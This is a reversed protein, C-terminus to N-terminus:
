KEEQISSNLISAISFQAIKQGQKIRLPSNSLNTVLVKIEDKFDADLSYPSCIIYSGNNFDWDRPSCTRVQLEYGKPIDLILNTPVLRSQGVPIVVSDGFSSNTLDAYLTYCASNESEKCPLSVDSPVKKKAKIILSLNKNLPGESIPQKPKELTNEKNATVELNKNKADESAKADVVTEKKPGEEILPVSENCSTQVEKEQMPAGENIVPGEQSEKEKNNKSM